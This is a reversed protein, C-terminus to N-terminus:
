NRYTEHMRKQLSLQQLKTYCRLKHLDKKWATYPGLLSWQDSPICMNIFGACNILESSERVLQVTLFAQKCFPTRPQSNNSGKQFQLMETPLVTFAPSTLPPCLQRKRWSLLRAAEPCFVQWPPWWHCRATSLQSTTVFHFTGLWLFVGQYNSIARMELAVSEQTGRLSDLLFTQSWQLLTSQFGWQQLCMQIHTDWSDVRVRLNDCKGNAEAATGSRELERRVM